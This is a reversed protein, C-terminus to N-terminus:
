NYVSMQFDFRGETINVDPCGSQKLTGNFRGSVIKNVLDLKTITIAGTQTSNNRDFWNCSSNSNSYFFANATSNFISYEKVTSVSYIYLNLGTACTNNTKILLASDSKYYQVNYTYCAGSGQPIFVEGNIKCGFTNAGTQTEPPLEDGANKPKNRRCAGGLLLCCVLFLILQKM